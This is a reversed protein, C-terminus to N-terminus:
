FYIIERIILGSNKVPPIPDEDEADYSITQTWECSIWNGQEDFKWNSFKIEDEMPYQSYAHELQITSVLNNKYSITGETGYLSFFILDNDSWNFDECFHWDELGEKTFYFKSIQGKDNRDLKYIGPNVWKGDNFEYVGPNTWLGNQDFYYTGPNSWGDFLSEGEELGTYSLSVQKVHGQLNFFDLDPSSFDNNEKSSCGILPLTLLLTLSILKKM